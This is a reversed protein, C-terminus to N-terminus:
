KILNKFYNFIKIYLDEFLLFSALFLFIIWFCINCVESSKFIGFGIVGAIPLAIAVSILIWEQEDNKLGLALIFLLIFWIMTFKM